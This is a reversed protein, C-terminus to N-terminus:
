SKIIENRDKVYNVNWKLVKAFVSINLSSIVMSKCNELDTKRVAISLTARGTCAANYDMLDFINDRIGTDM